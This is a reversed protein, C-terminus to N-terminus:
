DVEEYDVYDGGRFESNKDVKKGPNKEERPVYDINLNSNPAKRGSGQGNFSTGNQRQYYRQQEQYQQSVSSFITRFIFGGVKYFLYGILIVIILFKLM